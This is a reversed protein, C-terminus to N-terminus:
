PIMLRFREATSRLTMVKTVSACPRQLHAEKEFLVTGSGADMLVASPASIADAELASVPMVCFLMCLACLGALGRRLAGKRRSRILMM